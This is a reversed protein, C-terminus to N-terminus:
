VLLVKGHVKANTLVLLEYLWINLCSNLLIWFHFLVQYFFSVRKLFSVRDELSEIAKDNDHENIERSYSSSARLGGEELSDFGDVLSSRSSRNDRFILCNHHNICLLVGNNWLFQSCHFSIKWFYLLDLKFFIFM